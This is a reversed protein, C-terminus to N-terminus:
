RASQVTASLSQLLNAAYRLIIQNTLLIAFRELRIPSRCRRHPKSEKIRCSNWCHGKAKGWFKPFCKQSCGSIRFTLICGRTVTTDFFIGLILVHMKLPTLNGQKERKLFWQM